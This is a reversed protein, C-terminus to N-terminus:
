SVEGVRVGTRAAVGGGTAVPRVRPWFSIAPAAIAAITAPMIPMTTPTREESGAGMAPGGGVTVGISGSGAGGSGAGIAVAGVGVGVGAGVWAAGSRRSGPSVLRVMGRWSGGSTAEDPTRVVVGAAGIVVVASGGGAVGEGAGASV